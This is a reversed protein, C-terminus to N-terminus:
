ARADHGLPGVDPALDPEDGRGPRGAPLSGTRPSSTSTRASVGSTNSPTSRAINSTGSSTEASHAGTAAARPTTTISLDPANRISGSTGSTTGSTLGSAAPRPGFPMMETGFQVVSDCSRRARRRQVARERQALQDRRGVLRRGAGALGARVRQVVLQGLDAAVPGEALPGAVDPRASPSPPGNPAGSAIFTTGQAPDSRSAPQDESSSFIRLSVRLIRPRGSRRIEAVQTRTGTIM